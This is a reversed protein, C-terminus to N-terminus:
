KYETGGKRNLYDFSISKLIKRRARMTPAITEVEPRIVIGERGGFKGAIKPECLTTQGNTYEEVMNMSFPGKYLVPVTKVEHQECAEMVASHNLYKGGVTIDFVAFSTKNVPHGYWMDQVEAGYLEGFVIVNNSSVLAIDQMMNMVGEADYCKWFVSRLGNQCNFEKRRVTCSGAMWVFNGEEPDYIYGLRVNRGHIKETFIVPEDEDFVKPFNNINEINTYRHFGPHDRETDGNTTPEPPEYKEIGLIDAVNIGEMLPVLGDPVVDVSTVLGYSPVGRLRAVSVRGADPREGYADKPLKKLYHEVNLFRALTGPLITDPPFYVCLDGPKYKDKPVICHWRKIKAIELRDANEHPLLEEIKCIEVILSSVILGWIRM